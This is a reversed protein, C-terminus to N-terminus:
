EWVRRYRAEVFKYLGYIMLGSAVGGLVWPGYAARGLESLAGDIGRAEKPNSHWAAMVVFAGAVVFVIGRAAYGVRGALVTWCEERESMEALKLHKRFKATWARCLSSFGVGLIYLGGAGVLWQGFPQQLFWATWHQAASTGGATPAGLIQKVAVCGLSGYVVGNFALGLRKGIKAGSEGSGLFAEVLRWTAYAFLGVAMTAVLALGFPQRLLSWLAGNPDTTKGGAGMAMRLAFYGIVLYVMGKAAIGVRALRQVWPRADESVERVSDQAGQVTDKAQRLSVEAARTVDM